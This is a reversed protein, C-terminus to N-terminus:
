PRGMPRYRLSLGTGSRLPCPLSGRTWRPSLGAELQTRLGSQPSTLGVTELQHRKAEQVLETGGLSTVTRSGPASGGGGALPVSDFGLEPESSQGRRGTEKCSCFCCCLFLLLCCSFTPGGGGSSITQALTQTHESTQKNTQLPPTQSLPAPEPPAM